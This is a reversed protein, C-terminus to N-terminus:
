VKGKRRKHFNGAWVFCVKLRQKHQKDQDKKRRDPKMCLTLIVLVM